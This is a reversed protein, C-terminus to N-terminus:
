AAKKLRKSAGSRTGLVAQTIGTETLVRQVGNRGNIVACPLEAGALRLVNSYGELVKPMDQAAGSPEWRKKAARSAISAREEPSLKSARAYGGRARGEPQDNMCAGKAIMSADYARRDCFALM